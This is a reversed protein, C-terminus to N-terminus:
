WVCKQRQSDSVYQVSFTLTYLRMHSDIPILGNGLLPVNCRGNVVIPRCLSSFAGLRSAGASGGSVAVVILPGGAGDVVLVDVVVDVVVDTPVGGDCSTGVSDGAFGPLM